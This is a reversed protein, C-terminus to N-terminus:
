GQMRRRRREDLRHQLNSRFVRAIGVGFRRVRQPLNGDAWKWLLRTNDFASHQGTPIAALLTQEIEAGTAVRTAGHPFLIQSNKWCEEFLQFIRLDKALSELKALSAADFSRTAHSMEHLHAITPEHVRVAKGYNIACILLAHLPDPTYLTHEGYREALATEFFGDLHTPYPGGPQQLRHHLDIYPCDPAQHRYPAEGLHDHWWRSTEPVQPAFGAEALAKRADNYQSRDVLLDVDNSARANWTAYVQQARLSGKFVLPRIGATELAEVAKVTWDLNRLNQFLIADRIGAIKDATEKDMATRQLAQAVLGATKTRTALHLVADVDAVHPPVEPEDFGGALLSHLDRALEPNARLDVPDSATKNARDIM